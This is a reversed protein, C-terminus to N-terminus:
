SKVVNYFVSKIGNIYTDQRYRSICKDREDRLISSFEENEIAIIKNYVDHANCEKSFVMSKTYDVVDLIGAHDTTIVLLGNGMAELISIPQGERHYSTLLIFLDCKRLLKMKEKGGVTGHYTIFDEINNDRIYNWFFDKEDKSFFSGAFDFHLKKERGADVSEKELKAMELVKPYGKSRIFNSLYLAHRVNHATLERLKREFEDNSMLFEDDVCNSVTYIKERPLMGEFVNRLGPTLVVAGALKNVAKYNVRRQIKNLDNDVLQRYYGGHLHILCKKRKLEIIKLMILDRLNGGKTQSITLYFLDARCSIIRLLNVIFLKNSTINIKEVSFERSIDSKYLTDM